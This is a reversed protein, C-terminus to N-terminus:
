GEIGFLKKATNTTIRALEEFEVGRLAAVKEAVLRVYAPENRKGRHPVPTLYPCDTEFLFEEVPVNMAVERLTKANDFTVVGGIAIKLNLKICEEAMAMDGPFCHMIGGLKDVQEEKLIQMTDTDAERTHIVVPMKLDHALRLQARFVRQQVDRPSFDYHYDLGIEGIARVKEEKALEAILRLTDGTVDKANHPHVGVAAYIKPYKRALAATTKSSMEDSGINFIYEVGAEEARKIVEAQDGRFKSSDIHAHTDILIM